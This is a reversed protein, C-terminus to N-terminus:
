AQPHVGVRSEEGAKEQGEQCAQLPEHAEEQLTYTSVLHRSTTQLSLRMEEKEEEGLKTAAERNGRRKKLKERRKDRKQRMENSM